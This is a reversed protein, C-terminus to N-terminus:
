PTRNRLSVTAILSQRMRKDTATVSNGSCNTYKQYGTATTKEATATDSGEYLLCVQVSMVRNWNTVADAKRYINAVDDNDTDEGYLLQMEAIGDAVEETQLASGAFPNTALSKRMLTPRGNITGVYYIRDVFRMVEAGIRYVKAFASGTNNGGGHSITLTTGASAVASAAFMDGRECDAIVLVNGPSLDTATGTVKVDDTNAAMDANLTWHKASAYQVRVVDSKAHDQPAGALSQFLEGTTLGSPVLGGTYGQIPNTYTLNEDAANVRLALTGNAPSTVYSCGYHGALRLDYAIAEMAFRLSEQQRSLNDDVRATRQNAVFLLSAAATILMAIAIAIMLEIITLGRQAPLHTMPTM